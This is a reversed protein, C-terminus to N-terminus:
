TWINSRKGACNYTSTLHHLLLLLMTADTCIKTYTVTGELPLRVVVFVNDDGLCNCGNLAPFGKIVTFRSWEESEYATQYHMFWVPFCEVFTRSVLPFSLNRLVDIFLSSTVDSIGSQKKLFASFRQLFIAGPSFKEIKRTLKPQVPNAVFDLFFAPQCAPKWRM